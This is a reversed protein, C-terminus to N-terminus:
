RVKRKAMDELYKHAARDTKVLRTIDAAVKQAEAGETLVMKTGGTVRAALKQFGADTNLKDVASRLTGAAVPETGPPLLIARGLTVLSIALNMARYEVSKLVAGGRLSVIVEGALPVNPLRPDRILKGGRSLGTQVIPIVSGDKVYSALDTVVAVASETSFNVEGRLLAARIPRTGRYGKVYKYNNNGAAELFTKMYLDRSSNPRLGGVVITGRAAIIDAASRIGSDKRVYITNSYNLAGLWYFKPTDFKVNRGGIYQNTFPAITVLFMSGDKKAVNYLYNAAVNGGAGPKNQVIIKPKGPIHKGMYAAVLRAFNDVPGGASYGVLATLTKGSFDAGAAIGPSPAALLLLSVSAISSILNRM